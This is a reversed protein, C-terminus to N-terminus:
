PSRRESGKIEQPIVGVHYIGAVGRVGTTLFVVSQGVVRKKISAVFRVWQGPFETQSPIPMVVQAYPLDRVSLLQIENDRVIRLGAPSQQGARMRSLDLAMWHPRWGPQFGRALLRIGLDPPQPPDLSWCGAGGPPHRVYYDMIEDLQHGATEQSLEPFAIMSTSRPTGSTWCLGASESVSGGLSRAEQRFLERHNAAVAQVLQDATAGTLISTPPM